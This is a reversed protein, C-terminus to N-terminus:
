HDQEGEPFKASKSTARRFGFLADPLGRSNRGQNWYLRLMETLLM